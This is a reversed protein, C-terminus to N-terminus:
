RTRVLRIGNNYRKFDPTAFSRNACRIGASENDWSGGRVIRRVGTPPGTPNTQNEPPYPAKWDQCPEWVNGLMDYLGYANPLFSGVPSALAFGDTCECIDWDTWKKAATYDSVNAYKCISEVDDGWYRATTTGARCAYEWEAESPLWFSFRGNNQASLWIAFARVNKWSVNVVPLNNNNLSYDEYTESDHGPRFHRYQANTVEFRGMWFGDVCVERGPGEDDYRQAETDHSGMEFCGGPIFVFEMSTVPEVFVDGAKETAEPAIDGKSSISRWSLNIGIQPKVANAAYPSFLALAALIAFTTHIKKRM